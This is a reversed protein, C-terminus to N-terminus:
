FVCRVNLKVCMLDFGGFGVCVEMLGMKIVDLEEVGVVRCGECIVKVRSIWCVGWSEVYWVVVGVYLGVCGKWM